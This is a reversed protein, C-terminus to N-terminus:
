ATRLFRPSYSPMGRQTGGSRHVARASHSLPRTGIAVAPRVIPASGIASLSARGNLIAATAKEFEERRINAKSASKQEFWVHRVRIKDRDAQACMQRVMSRLVALTDKKKSRRVYMEALTAPDGTCVGWLGLEKLEDEFGLAKLAPYDEREM